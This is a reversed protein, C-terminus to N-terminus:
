TAVPFGACAELHVLLRALALWAERETADLWPPEGASARTNM